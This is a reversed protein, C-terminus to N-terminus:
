IHILSLTNMSCYNTSLTSIDFVQDGDISFIQYGNALELEFIHYEDALYDTSIIQRTTGTYYVVDLKTNNLGFFVQAGSSGNSLQLRFGAATTGSLIQLDVLKARCSLKANTTTSDTLNFRILNSTSSTGSNNSHLVLENGVITETGGNGGTSKTVYDQESLLEGNRPDYLWTYQEPLGRYETVTVNFTDTKGGYSVNITSTGAELTGSLTYNTITETTADNYTATVVLDEKLDDLSDIDYVTGSQTYVASISVLNTPPYLTDELTDIYSQGNTDIWAVKKFCALLAQKVGETLGTKAIQSRVAEGASGYETGDYGIRIDDLDAKLDTIEAANEIISDQIDNLNEATIVTVNDTYTRKNLSM